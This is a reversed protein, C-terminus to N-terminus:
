VTLSIATQKRKNCIKCITENKHHKKVHADKASILDFVQQCIFCRYDDAEPKKNKNRTIDKPKESKKKAETHPYEEITSYVIVTSEEVCTTEIELPNNLHKAEDSREITRRLVSDSERYKQKFNYAKEM